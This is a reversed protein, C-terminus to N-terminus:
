MPFLSMKYIFIAIKGLFVFTGGSFAGGSFTKNSFGKKQKFSRKKSSFGSKTPFDAKQEFIRKKNWFGSKLKLFWGKGKFFSSNESSFTSFLIVIGKHLVLWHDSTWDISKVYRLRLPRRLHNKVCIASTYVSPMCKEYIRRYHM